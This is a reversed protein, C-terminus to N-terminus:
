IKVERWSGQRFARWALWTLLIHAVPIMLASAFVGVSTHKALFYAVPTQFVWFCIVNLRTPVKTEGAGNLSQSYIMALGYFVFGSGLWRLAGVGNAIVAPESTFLRVLPGACALIFITVALMIAASIKATTQVSEIAREPKKAGLNQGVLTAAANSLGWAPLIFFVFNRFAIQYGASADTGGVEAVLRNLIIWSGSGIMFQFSAPWAIQFLSQIVKPNPVLDKLQIRLAHGKANLRMCQYVVGSSRGIVTAIAAGPLGFFHILIPCLVINIGSAIWLSKMAIAANGAGRFVGNILFLLVIATNGGILIRPFSSGTAIVSESAGMLRLLDSAFVIGAVAIVLSIAIGVVIAQGSALAAGAPDKEGTRRAVLAGAGTSLGIAISYIITVVSETLGVAAIADSGLRSVFFMDVLAFVSELGLELIMPIALLMVADGVPGVTFDRDHDAMSNKLLGLTRKIM